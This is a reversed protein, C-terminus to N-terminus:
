IAPSSPQQALYAGRVGSVLVDPQFRRLIALQRQDMYAAARAELEHGLEEALEILGDFGVEVRGDFGVEIAKVHASWSIEALEWLDVEFRERQAETLQARAVFRDLRALYKEQLERVRPDTATPELTKRQVVQLPDMAAIAAGMATRASRRARSEGREEIREAHPATVGREDRSWLVGVVLGLVVVIVIGITKSM